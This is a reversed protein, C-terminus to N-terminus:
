TGGKRKQNFFDQIIIIVLATISNLTKLFRLYEARVM